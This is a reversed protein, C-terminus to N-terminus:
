KKRRFSVTESHYYDKVCDTRCIQHKSLNKLDLREFGDAEYPPIKETEAGEEELLQLEYSPIKGWTDWSAGCCGGETEGILIYEKVNPIKRIDKTSDKNSPMWSCVVIDPNYKKISKIHNLKEVPFSPKIEWEFSDTAIVKAQGPAKEEIKQQLFHSLRGNGAGIELVLIPKEKSAGYTEIRQVFYDALANLYEQNLFEFVPNDDDECFNRWEHDNAFANEIQEHAPLFNPDKM